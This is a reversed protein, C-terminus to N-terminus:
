LSSMHKIALGPYDSAIYFTGKFQKIYDYQWEHNLTWLIIEINHATLEDVLQQTINGFYISAFNSRTYKMQELLLTVSDHFILGTCLESDKAKINKMLSHDFSEIMIRDKPYHKIAELLKDAIEPYLNATTKIEVVLRKKGDVLELLDKFLPIKEDKFEASFWGGFDFQLLEEYTYNRVLGTSNSTRDITFDHIVVIEGDKSLQIDCEIADVTPDNVAMRFSAMTNEPAVGCWGRHALVYNQM